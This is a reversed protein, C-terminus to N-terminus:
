GLGAPLGSGPLPSGPNQDGCGEHEALEVLTRSLSREAMFQKQHESAVWLSERQEYGLCTLYGRRYAAQQEVTFDAFYRTSTGTAVDFTVRQCRDGSRVQVLAFRADATPHTPGDVVVCRQGVETEFEVRWRAQPSRGDSTVSSVGSATTYAYLEVYDRAAEAVIERESPRSAGCGLTISVLIVVLAMGAIRPATM